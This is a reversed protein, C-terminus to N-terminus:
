RIVLLDGSFPYINGDILEIELFYTYIGQVAPLNNIRGDWINLDQTNKKLAVLNGWRDYIYANRIEKILGSKAGITFVNDLTVSNFDIVNPIFIDLDNLTISVTFNEEAICGDENIATVIHTQSVTPIFEFIELNNFIELESTSWSYNSIPQNAFLEVQLSEGLEVITDPPLTLIFEPPNDLTINFLQVCNNRNSIEITYNGATLNPVPNVLQPIGDLSYSYPGLLGNNLIFEISGDSGDHCAPDLSQPSFDLDEERLVTLTLNVMSDCGRSSIFTETYQGSMTLMQNGLAFTTNACITDFLEYQLPLVEIVLVDSIINCFDNIIEDTSNASIYRYYYTGITFNSHFVSLGTANPIDEWILSDTSFQWIIAPNGSSIDATIETPASAGECVFITEEADIFADPGCPRFSINDLALDNGNGGSANNRLSLKVETQGVSTTFTFGYKNWTENQPIDGTSFVVVDDILFSVNPLIHDPIGSMVVNIIDASFEYFTNECLGTVQNTYFEGPDFNANVLMFYGFPDDSNDTLTLWTPFHFGWGATNNTIVYSGDSPTAAQAQYTYGPAIEPDITLINVMGRGFDGDTFINQGLNGECLQQATIGGISVLAILISLISKKM